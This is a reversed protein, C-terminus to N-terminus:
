FDAARCYSMSLRIATEAAPRAVFSAQLHDAAVAYQRMEYAAIGLAFFKEGPNTAKEALGLLEAAKQRALEFTDIEAKIIETASEM